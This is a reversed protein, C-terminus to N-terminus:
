KLNLVAILAPFGVLFIWGIFSVLFPPTEPHVTPNGIFGTLGAVQEPFWILALPILVAVCFM